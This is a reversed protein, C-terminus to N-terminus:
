SLTPAERELAALRTDVAAARESRRSALTSLLEWNRDGSLLKEMLHRTVLHDLKDM